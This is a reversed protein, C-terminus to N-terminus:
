PKANGGSHPVRSTTVTIRYGFAGVNRRVNPMGSFLHAFRTVTEETLAQLISELIKIRGPDNFVSSGM